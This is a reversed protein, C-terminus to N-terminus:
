QKEKDTKPSTSKGPSFASSLMDLGSQWAQTQGQTIQNASKVWDEVASRMTDQLREAAASAYDVLKNAQEQFMAMNKTGMDMSKRAMNTVNETWQEMNLGNMKEM